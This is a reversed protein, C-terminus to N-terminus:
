CLMLSRVVAAALAVLLAAMLWVELGRQWPPM